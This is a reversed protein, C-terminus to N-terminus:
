QRSDKWQKINNDKKSFFDILSAGSEDDDGNMLYDPNPNEFNEADSVLKYKAELHVAVPVSPWAQSRYAFM